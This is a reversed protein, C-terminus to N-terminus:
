FTLGTTEKWKRGRISIALFRQSISSALANHPGCVAASSIERKKCRPVHGCFTRAAASHCLKNHALTLLSQKTCADQRVTLQSADACSVNRAIRCGRDKNMGAARRVVDFYIGSRVEKCYFGACPRLRQPRRYSSTSLFALCWALPRRSGGFFSIRQPFRRLPQALVIVSLRRGM